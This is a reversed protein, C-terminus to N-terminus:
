LGSIHSTFWVRTVFPQAAPCTPQDRRAPAWGRTAAASLAACTDTDHARTM